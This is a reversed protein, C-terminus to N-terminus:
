DSIVGVRVRQTTESSAGGVDVITTKVLIQNAGPILTTDHGTVDNNLGYGRLEKSATVWVASLNGKTSITDVAALAVRQGQGFRYYVTSRAWVSDSSEQFIAVNEAGGIDYWGSVITDNDALTADNIIYNARSIYQGTFTYALGFVILVVALFGYISKHKMNTLKNM